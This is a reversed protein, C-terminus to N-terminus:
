LNENENCFYFMFNSKVFVKIMWKLLLIRLILMNKVFGHM